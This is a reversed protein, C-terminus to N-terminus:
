DELGSYFHVIEWARELSIGNRQDISLPHESEEVEILPRQNNGQFHARTKLLLTSEDYCALHTSLWGFFPGIDSSDPNQRYMEFNERKQSIWVGFGFNEACLHVPIEIIGRVFFDEGDIICTDPTLEIRRAREEEPVSWWHDPRDLGIDPLDDHFEGCVACHYNMIHNDGSAVANVKICAQQRLL